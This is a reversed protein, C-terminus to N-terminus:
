KLLWCPASNRRAILVWLLSSGFFTKIRIELIKEVNLKLSSTYNCM